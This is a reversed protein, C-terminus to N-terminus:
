NTRVINEWEESLELWKDFTISNANYWYFAGNIWFEPDNKDYKLSCNGRNKFAKTWEELADNDYLFKRFKRIMLEKESLKIKAVYKCLINPKDNEKPCRNNYFHEGMIYGCNACYETYSPYSTTIHNIRNYKKISMSRKPTM